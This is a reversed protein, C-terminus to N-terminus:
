MLESFDKRWEERGTIDAYYETMKYILNDKFTYFSVAYLSTDDADTYIHVVSVAKDEGILEAKQLKTNWKGPYNMNAAIMKEKSIFKEKSTEWTATFDKHLLEATESYRREDFRLWFEQILPIRNEM